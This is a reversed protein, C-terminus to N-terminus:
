EQMYMVAVNLINMVIDMVPPPPVKEDCIAKM